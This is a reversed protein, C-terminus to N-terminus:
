SVHVTGILPDQHTLIPLIMLSLFCIITFVVIAYIMMRESILHMFYCAVLAGKISAVLLAVTVTWFFPMHIKSVGVTVITLVFLAWFVILYIKVQKDIDHAHTSSM